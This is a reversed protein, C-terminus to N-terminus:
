LLTYNKVGIPLNGNYYPDGNKIFDGHKEMLLKNSEESSENDSDGLLVSVSPEYVIRYGHEIARLSLDLMRDRKSLRTDIGGSKKLFKSDILCCSLSIAGVDQRLAIRGDYGSSVALEGYCAPYSIGMKDFIYGCNGISLFDKMTKPCVMVVDPQNLAAFLKKVSNRGLMRASKAKVFTYSSNKYYYASGDYKIRLHPFESIPHRGDFRKDPIIDANIKERELELSVIAKAESLRAYYLKEKEKKLERSTFDEYLSFYDNEDEESIFHRHFLLKELHFVKDRKDSFSLLLYYEPFFKMRDGFSFNMRRVAFSNGIYDYQRLLEVNYASLFHPRVREAKEIEDYDSYILFKDSNEDFTKSIFFLADKSLRDHQSLFLIIDGKATATAFNLAFGATRGSVIHRYTIRDDEPFFENVIVGLSSDPNQDLIILEFDTLTQSLVSDICDRFYVRNTHDARIIVSFKM